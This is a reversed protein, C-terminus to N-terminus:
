DRPAAAVVSKLSELMLAFVADTDTVHNLWKAATANKGGTEKAEGRREADPPGETFHLTPLTIGRYLDARLAYTIVNPDHIFPGEVGFKGQDLPLAAMLMGHFAPGYAPHTKLIEAQRSPSLVMFQTADAALVTLRINHKLLINLSNPDCYANFEAYETINGKRIRGNELSVPTFNAGPPNLAGGMYIIERINGAKEPYKILFHALNTAPGTCFVIAGPNADLLVAFWDSCDIDKAKEPSEPLIVGGVGDSGYADDGMPMMGDYPKAAGQVVPIGTAGLFHLLNLINRTAIDVKVNGFCTSIGLLEFTERHALLMAIAWLDDGGMDGDYIVPIKGM